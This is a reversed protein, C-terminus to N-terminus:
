NVTLLSLRTDWTQTIHPFFRESSFSGAIRLQWMWQAWQHQHHQASGWFAQQLGIRGPTPQLSSETTAASRQNRCDQLLSEPILAGKIAKNKGQTSRSFSFFSGLPRRGLFLIGSGHSSHINLKIPKKSGHADSRGTSIYECKMFEGDRRSRQDATMTKCNPMQRGGSEDDEWDM